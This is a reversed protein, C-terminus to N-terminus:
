KSDLAFPESERRLGYFAYALYHPVVFALLADPIVASVVNNSTFGRPSTVRVDFQASYHFLRSWIANIMTHRPGSVRFPISISCDIRLTTHVSAIMAAKTM